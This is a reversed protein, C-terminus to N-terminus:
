TRPYLSDHQDYPAEGFKCTKRVRGGSQVDGFDVNEAEHARRQSASDQKCVTRRVDIFVICEAELWQEREEEEATFSTDASVSVRM